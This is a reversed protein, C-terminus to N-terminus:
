KKRHKRRRKRSKENKKWKQLEKNVDFIAGDEWMRKAIIAINKVDDIGSHRHGVFELGYRSLMGDINSKECNYFNSFLTRIDVWPLSFYSPRNIRSITCQKKIFDRIDWPGDTIFACTNEYFLQHRHLFEQFNNLMEPFSPSADITTQAIGTLEKCFDTL